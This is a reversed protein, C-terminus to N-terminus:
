GLSLREEQNLVVMLGYSNIPDILETESLASDVVPLATEAVARGSIPEKTTDSFENEHALGDSL